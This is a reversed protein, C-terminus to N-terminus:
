ISTENRILYIKKIENSGSYVLNFYQSSNYGNVSIRKKTIPLYNSEDWNGWIVYVDESINNEYLLSINDHAEALFLETNVFYDSGEGALRDDYISVHFGYKKLSTAIYDPAFIISENKSVNDNLWKLGGDDRFIYPKKSMQFDLASIILILAVLFITLAILKKNFRRLFIFLGASSFIIVFIDFTYLFRKSFMFETIILFLLISVFSIFLYAKKKNKMYAFGQIAFITLFSIELIYSLLPPITLGKLKSPSAGLDNTSYLKDVSDIFFRKNLEFNNILYASTILLFILCISFIAKIVFKDKKYLSFIFLFLTLLFFLFFIGKHIIFIASGLLSILIILYFSKENKLKSYYVLSMLLLFTAFLQKYFSENLSNFQFYSVAFLFISILAVKYNGFLKYSIHFIIISFILTTIIQLFVFYLSLGDIGTIKSIVGFLLFVGPEMLLAFYTDENESLVPYTNLYPYTEHSAYKETLFQYIGTDFGVEFDTSNALNPITRITLSLLFLAILILYIKKNNM